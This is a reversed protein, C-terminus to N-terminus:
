RQRDDRSPLEGGDASTFRLRHDSPDKDDTDCTLTWTLVTGPTTDVPTEGRCGYFPAGEADEFVVWVHVPGLPDPAIVRASGTCQQLAPPSALGPAPPKVACESALVAILPSPTPTSTPNPSPTSVSTRPPPAAISLIVVIAALGVLIAAVM